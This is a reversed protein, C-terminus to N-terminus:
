DEVTLGLRQEARLVDDTIDLRDYPRDDTTAFVRDESWELDLDLYRPLVEPYTNVLSIDDAVPASGEPGPLYMANLVGFKTVYDEDSATEWDFDEVEPEYGKPYPGEDAQIIVIPHEEPSGALLRDLLKDLEANAFALQTAFSAEDPAFSGDGLLLYPEHPVLLHAFVYKPGDQETVDHLRELQTRTTEALRQLLGNPAHSLLIDAMDSLGTIASQDLLVSQLDILNAPRVVQDATESGATQHYWSGVHVYRYGLDQLVTAVPSAKLLDYLPGWSPNDPGMEQAVDELLSMSFTSALSLATRDFNAHSSRAVQFGREELSATYESNDIGLGTALADDSGYRDLVIHYIDRARGSSQAARDIAADQAATSASAHDRVSLGYAVIPLLAVVVLVLSVLNLAETVRGLSGRLRTAVYAAIALVALWVAITMLHPRFLPEHPWIPAMATSILGFTLFPVVFATTVIAARKPERWLLTSLLLVAIALGVVMALPLLLENLSFEKVNDGYLRLVPWAAFLLPYM